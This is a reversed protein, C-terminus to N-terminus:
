LPEEPPATPGITRDVRALRASTGPVKTPCRRPLGPGLGFVVGCFPQYGPYYGPLRIQGCTPGATV